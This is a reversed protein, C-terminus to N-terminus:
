ELSHSTKSCHSRAGVRIDSDLCQFLTPNYRYHVGPFSRTERPEDSRMKWLCQKGLEGRKLFSQTEERWSMPWMIHLVRRTQCGARSSDFEARKLNQHCIKMENFNLHSCKMQFHLSVLSSASRPVFICVSCSRSFPLCM